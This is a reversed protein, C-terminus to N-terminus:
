TEVRMSYACISRQLASLPRAGAFPGNLDCVRDIELHVGDPEAHVDFSEVDRKWLFRSAPRPFSDPKKM